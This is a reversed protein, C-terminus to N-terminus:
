NVVRSAHAVVQVVSRGLELGPRYSLDGRHRHVRREGRLGAVATVNPIETKAATLDDANLEYNLPQSKDPTQVLSASVLNSGVAEIQSIVFKQSTLAVTVVLVISASGIIVGLSTLMARVKNARLADIAVSVTERLDMM